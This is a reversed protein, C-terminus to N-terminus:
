GVIIKEQPLRITDSTNKQAFVLAFSLSGLRGCYMLVILMLRAATNLDRTIGTSMGVTNIASFVELLVDAMDFPQMAMIIIAALAALMFNTVVVANAKKVVDDTLRRGFLNIDEHNRIMAAAYLLLVVITTTKAGGATSGPSGGIFMLLITLMKGANSLGAVDTTNFGATRPTVSCFAAGLAKEVPTLGALVGHNELLLFAITTIVTLGITVTLVIKTHLLYKKFHWKNRMLDDWVIFGIGGTLILFMVVVNVLVDGEFSVLSAYAEECGMLDFGANCFASVAHFISFAIGRLLGFRPIFRTSLLLAGIGEILLTGQVIKRALRVVGAIEMSNVSEQLNERQKLGIKKKLIISIYVGITMFGLGGIQILTFIVIIGFTTWNQYTDAVILGTVCTASTATFLANLVNPQGSRVSIPLSLLITGIVIILAFGLAVLRTTSRKIKYKNKNKLERQDGKYPTSPENYCDAM